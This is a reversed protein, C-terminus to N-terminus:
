RQRSLLWSVADELTSQNFDFGSDLLRQPIARQSSVINDGMEGVIARLALKPAPLLTPRHLQRGMEAVVERQPAPEPGTLNVPGQLVNDLVHQVARVHDELTIWAWYQRGNGLPGGLGLRTLLLLAKIADGQPDLVIGTRLLSVPAGSQAAPETAGEWAHVVDVLFGSGASSEETLVEDGRDGYYGVASGNLLHIPRGTAAIATALATTGDTRSRVVEAKFAPTFRHAGLSAGAVNIVADVGDLVEPALHRTSPDWQVESSHEPPRRVLRIVEDGRERLSRCLAGGILGSSGAVAIRQSM